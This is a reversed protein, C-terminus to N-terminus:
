SRLEAGIHKKLGELVKSMAKNVEEDTLTRDSARFSLSYAVSKKGEPVQKGKYVDFLEVEELIRGAMAKIIIEIDKVHVDENVLMALDRTVSPFKPLPKYQVKLSSAELLNNFEIVALLSDEPAEFSAAVDPHIQGLIGAYAGNVVLNATRGPHFSPHNKEPIFEANVIGLQDLLEEIIGKLDFFDAEGYMGVTLVQKEVPLANHEIPMYTYALEFVHAKKARRSYNRSLIDLMEPLTTTRMISYDEGLPNSIVVAKRIVSDEPLRLRDFVKPSTFSYTCAESLGCSIMTQKIIDEIKQKYTKRGLTPAKGELLSPPINNYGYFRAIEEAIDAEVEIDTRFSPVKIIMDKENIEFDLRKLIDIMEGTPIDTGLFSNIKSPRLALERQQPKVPYCDVIGKCVDGAAIIEVLQAARNLAAIVNEPDLGKEFRSSAETRMGLKKAALRVATANFNASEFLIDVTDSSIESNAGGMVGAVAVAREQDAIVLMSSDLIRENDDLTKIKEGELAKRVIIKNGKINRLDFAHMPQGYELMVYNTIDVINNIPRIGAARLRDKMWKPSPGIKVNKVVRAAYRSCLDTDKIEVSIYDSADSSANEKLSIEPMKFPKKFTAGTERAIGLISLCDPRNSTIEFEAVVDNMGLVEKIDTGPAYENSLIFIGDEDAEPYDYKTLGLEDISCMMGESMLGRLKGKKIQKGGPLLAGDLAVPVFDGEKINSAGTIIQFVTDGIDVQAVQLKDANPHKEVSTIKGVVVNKIEEGLIELTEVKSGTMTLAEAFERPDVDIEVYEKLWKLPVRM